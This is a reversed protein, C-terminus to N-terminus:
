VLNNNRAWIVWQVLGITFVVAAWFLAAEFNSEPFESSQILFAFALLFIILPSVASLIIKKAKKTSGSKKDESDGNRIELDSFDLATALSKITFPRPLVEAKEIRQISRLSIGTKEALDTQTYGRAERKARVVEALTQKKIKM